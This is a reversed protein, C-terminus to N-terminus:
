DVLAATRPPDGLRILRHSEVWGLNGEGLDVRSWSARRSVTRAVSGTPVRGVATSGLGPAERLLTGRAIVRDGGLLEEDLAFALLLSGVALSAVLMAGGAALRRRRRAVGGLLSLSWAASWFALAAIAPTNRSVNTVRAPGPANVDGLISLRARADRATPELRLARQWGHVASATDGVHWASTGYNVWSAASRPALAAATAFHSRAAAIDGREFATVGQSFQLAAELGADALLSGAGALSMALVPIVVVNRRSRRLARAPLAEEDIRTLLECARRAPQALPTADSRGFAVAELDRMLAECETATEPTVGARLLSRRVAGASTLNAATMGVRDSLAAGLLRRVLAPDHREEAAGLVTLRAAATIAPQEIRRRRRGIVLAPIPIMALIVWYGPRQHLPTGVPGSYAVRIPLRSELLTDASAISGQEVFIRVADSVATQYRRLAPDFYPYRVEPFVLDGERYPTLIWDFEKRGGIVAAGTDVSVREGGAVLQGWGVDLRPRPFLNVNGEGSVAVTVVLPDGVRAERADLRSDVALRGVAGVYDAPQGETPPLVAIVITSDTGLEFSEERSFFSMGLPLSYVLQAPPIAHRGPVLPFIARRYVLADFCDRSIRRSPPDGPPMPVDYALMSVMDPPFFTPNRRLRRRVAGNLFVAVEYFAQEGVFVTDPEAAAQFSVRQSTDIRARAVVSPAGGDDPIPSVRVGIPASRAVEDGSRVEFPPIEHRGSVDTAVVYRYEHLFASRGGTAQPRSLHHTQRLLEFPTLSPIIVRPRAPSASRVAVTIELAECATVAPPAHAAVSLQLLIAFASVM